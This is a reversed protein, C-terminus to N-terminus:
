DSSHAQEFRSAPLLLEEVGPLHKVNFVVKADETVPASVCSLRIGRELLEPTLVHSVPPPMEGEIVAVACNSCAGGRCAFPWAFGNAEAAELLSQGPEVEFDGHDVTELDAEAARAFLDDDMLTWGHDDLADYNLYEVRVTEPENDAAPAEDSADGPHTASDTADDATKGNRLEQYAARVRRFEEPSGGQDPHAEMVRERYARVIADEDADRPVDLVDYPSPM